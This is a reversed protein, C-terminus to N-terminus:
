PQIFPIQLNQSIWIFIEMLWNPEYTNIAGNYPNQWTMPEKVMGLICLINVVVYAILRVVFLIVNLAYILYNFCYALNNLLTTWFEEQLFSADSNIWHLPNKELVLQEFGVFAGNINQLWHPIDFRWMQQGTTTTIKYIFPIEFLNFYVGLVFGFMAIVILIPITDLWLKKIM